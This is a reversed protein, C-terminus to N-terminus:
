PGRRALDTWSIRRTLNPASVDAFGVVVVRLGAAAFAKVALKSTCVGMSLKPFMKRLEGLQSVLRSEVVVRPMKFRGSRVVHWRQRRWLLVAGDPYNALDLRHHMDAHRRIPKRTLYIISATEAIRLLAAQAVDSDASYARPLGDADVAVVPRNADWVYIPVVASVEEGEFDMHNVHLTYRGPEVPAAVTTGAYGLKDTYAAREPERAIRFRMVADKAPLNLVFFDNRQLRVVVATEQGAAAVHDGATLTYYGGCGGTALTLVLLVWAKPRDPM